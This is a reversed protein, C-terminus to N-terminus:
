SSSSLSSSPPGSCSNVRSLISPLLPCTSSAKIIVSSPHMTNRIIVEPSMLYPKEKVRRNQKRYFILRHRNDHHPHPQYTSSPSSSSLSSVQYVVQSNNLRIHARVDSCSGCDYTVAIRSSWSDGEQTWKLTPPAQPLIYQSYESWGNKFEVDNIMWVLEYM